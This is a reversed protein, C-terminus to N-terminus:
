FQEDPRSSLIATDAAVGCYEPEPRRPWPVLM